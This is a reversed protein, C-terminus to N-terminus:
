DDGEDHGKAKLEEMLEEATVEKKISLNAAPVDSAIYWDDEHLDTHAKKMHKKWEFASWWCHGCVYCEMCNGLHFQCIHTSTQGRSQCIVDCEGPNYGRERMVRAYNCKYIAVWSFPGSERDSIFEDPVGTHLYANRDAKTPHLPTAQSLIFPGTVKSPKEQKRLKKVPPQKTASRTTRKMGTKLSTGPQDESLFEVDAEQKTTVAAALLTEEKEKETPAISPVEEENEEEGFAAEFVDLFKTTATGALAAKMVKVADWRLNLATQEVM